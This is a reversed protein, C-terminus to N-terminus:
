QLSLQFRLFWPCRSAGPAPHKPTRIVMTSSLQVRLDATVRHRPVARRVPHRQAARSSTTGSGSTSGSSTTSGTSSTPVLRVADASTICGGNSIAIIRANGSFSYTGLQNWRGGNKQQNVTITDLHNNGDYIEIPM